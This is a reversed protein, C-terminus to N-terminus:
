FLCVKKGKLTAVSTNEAEAEGENEVVARKRKTINKRPQPVEVLPSVVDECARAKAALQPAVAKSVKTFARLPAQRKGVRAGRTSPAM